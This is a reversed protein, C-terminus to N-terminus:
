KFLRYIRERFGVHKPDAFVQKEVAGIQAKLQKRGRLKILNHVQQQWQLTQQLEPNLVFRADMLLKDQPALQKLLYLDIQRTDSVSIKM